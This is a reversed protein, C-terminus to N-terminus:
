MVDVFFECPNGMAMHFSQRSGMLEPPVSGLDRVPPAGPPPPGGGGVASPPGSGGGVGGPMMQPQQQHLQHVHIPGPVAIMGPPVAYPPPIGPPGYAHHYFPPPPPPPPPPGPPHHHHHQHHSSGAASSGASSRRASHASHAESGPFSRVSDARERRQATGASSVGSRTSARDSESGSGASSRGENAGGGASGSGGIRRHDREKGGSRNSGSSHSGESHQSPAAAVAYAYGTVEHYGPPYPSYAHPHAPVAPPPYHHFAAGYPHSLTAWPGGAALPLPALTDQDSSISACDPEQLTLKSLDATLDGFIYYCQESFTIKNVTHRILGAQLLRSAFKRADRRDAFGEVHSFLWDVVDSGIFANQIKIKLWMRDRVELGSEPASMAKTITVMDTHVSLQYEDYRESEPVSSTLSSSGSTVTSMSHSPPYRPFTGTMAAAQSVWVAPDIPRVPENRPITFYSRPTPDWCKAVTLSIPGPKHVVERLVRVADDNSLNEFSVENVQLLMDGPEIRGDAAVAGGKMISGIYIGGDGRENSQGVISIGLFNYKEMNLTVTIINLSMTSDTISSFSSARDMEQMRHKRRRRRHRKLLRSSGTQETSTSFRSANDDDEDEESDFASTEELESSVVSSADYAHQHPAAPAAHHHHHHPAAVAHHPPAHHPHQPAHLPRGPVPKVLGNPRPGTHEHRPDRDRRSRRESRASLVSETDTARDLSEQSGAPNPHFSPPRSDGIGGTRELPPPLEAKPESCQSGTESPDAAVLWSVVRGNFCPLRAADDSIEEKVVGFDADMSKFYFKCHPKNLVAKFDALTVLEAPVAVKVLYPTEEEDIHYIIKTEGM